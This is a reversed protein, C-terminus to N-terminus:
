YATMSRLAKLAVRCSLLLAPEDMESRWTVMLGISAKPLGAKFRKSTKGGLKVPRLATSPVPLM